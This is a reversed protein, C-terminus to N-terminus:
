KEIRLSKAMAALYEIPTGKEGGVVAGIIKDNKYAFVCVSHIKRSLYRLEIEVYNANLGEQLNIL